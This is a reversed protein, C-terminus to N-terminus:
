RHGPLARIERHPQRERQGDRLREDHAGAILNIRQRQRRDLTDGSQRAGFEFVQQALSFGGVLVTFLGVLEAM